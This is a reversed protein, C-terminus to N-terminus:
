KKFEIRPMEPVEDDKQNAKPASAAASFDAGVVAKALESLKELEGTSKDKLEEETFKNAKNAKISEILNTRKESNLRLGERLEAKFAEPAKEVYETVTKAENVVVPAPTAEKEPAEAVKELKGFLLESLKSLHERDAEEAVNASILKDIREKREVKDEQSNQPNTKNGEPQQASLAQSNEKMVYDIKREVEVADGQLEIKNTESIKYSQQFLKRKGDQPLYISYIFKDEYIDEIFPENSKDLKESIIDQLKNEIMRYSIEGDNLEENIRPMGAGDAWSCSGIGNPLLALHDPRYNRAIISYKEGNWNKEENLKEDETFLGTSVEINANQYIKSLIEPHNTKAKIIDIWVDAKLKGDEFRTNFLQGVVQKEIVEPSNATIPKGSMMPHYVPVPRGNWAEPFKALEEAPYFVGNHVGETILVAPCVLYERGDLVKKEILQSMNAVISHSNNKLQKKIESNQKEVEEAPEFLIYKIKHEKLWQEAEEASFKEKSFRYAQVTTKNEGILKGVVIDIGEAISRRRFSNKEFKDPDVVRGAHENPYPM